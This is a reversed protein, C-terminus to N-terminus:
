KKLEEKEKELQKVMREQNLIDKKKSKGKGEIQMKKSEFPAVSERLKTLQKLINNYEATKVDLKTMVNKREETKKEIEAQFKEINSQIKSLQAQLSDLNDM